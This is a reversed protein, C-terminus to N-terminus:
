ERHSAADDPQFLVSTINEGGLLRGMRAHALDRWYQGDPYSTWV